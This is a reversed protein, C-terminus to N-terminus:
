EFFAISRCEISERPQANPLSTDWFATHPVRWAGTQESDHFKFLLAEDRVMNSFYWWRHDPNHRFIAAAMQNEDDMPAFMADGEPIKDVVWLVNPTGEDARVSRGDCLALPCDQPPPSYTRWFSSIIFRKFGPGGPRAKEYMRRAAKLQRPPDTDVHVEGAPPQVGARHQYPEDVGRKKQRSAVDGSTRVMWGMAAVVDAGTAEQVYREVEGPYVREVGEVDAFDRVQTPADLLTFGQRELTFHDRITRADRITTLFPGYSGTNVEVGASVFRRNIDPGPLLYTLQAEVTRVNDEIDLTQASM